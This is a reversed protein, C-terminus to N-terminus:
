QLDFYDGRSFDSELNLSNLNDCINKIQQASENGWSKKNNYLSYDKRHEFPSLNPMMVNASHILASDSYVKGVTALATTAPILAKPLIIRILALVILTHKINLNNYNRFPTDKHPLFPGTGVMEPNLDKLFLLDNAITAPTQYPSDVMLGGGTQFGLTKLNKLCQKRNKLSMTPPHLKKYHENTASEHRLLYRDVGSKKLASYFDYDLEGISLTVASDSFENKISSVIDCMIEKTFYPDEGGQLVFTRFGIQHGQECCQLITEKDLRYRHAKKNGARIGCYYCNQKCYSSIEILGRFYVKNKYYKNRFYKAIKYLKELELNDAQTFYYNIITALSSSNLNILHERAVDPNNYDLM